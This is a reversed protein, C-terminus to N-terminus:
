ADEIIASLKTSSKRSSTASPLAATAAAAARRQRRAASAAMRRQEKELLVVRVLQSKYAQRERQIIALEEDSPGSNHKFAEFDNNIEAMVAFPQQANRWGPPPSMSGPNSYSSSSSGSSSTYGSDELGDSLFLDEDTLFSSTLGVGSSGLCSRNPWSPFACVTSSRGSGITIPSPSMDATSMSSYSGFSGYM